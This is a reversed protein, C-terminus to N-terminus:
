RTAAARSTRHGTVFAANLRARYYSILFRERRSLAHLALSALGYGQFYWPPLRCKRRWPHDGRHIQEFVRASEGAQTMTSCREALTITHFHEATADPLFSTRMGLKGLRLGLEFDDWAHYPFREDFPGAEDLLSRKVSSNGAYFFGPPISTMDDAFPIGFLEGSRELWITFHTRFEKGLVMAGVGARHRDPNDQHFRLHTEATHAAAIADDAFFLIIPARCRKLGYNYAKARSGAPISELHLRLRTDTLKLAREWALVHDHTGSADIIVAEYEEPPLTQGILARFFRDLDPPHDNTAILFSLQPLETVVQL